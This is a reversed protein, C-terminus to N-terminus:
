KVEDDYKTQMTVQEVQEPILRFSSNSHSLKSDFRQANTRSKNSIVDKALNDRCTTINASKNDLMDFMEIEQTGTQLIPLNVEKSYITENTNELEQEIRRESCKFSIFNSQRYGYNVM